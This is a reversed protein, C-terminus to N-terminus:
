GTQSMANHYRNANHIMDPNFLMTANPEQQDTEAVTHFHAKGVDKPDHGTQHMDMKPHQPYRWM